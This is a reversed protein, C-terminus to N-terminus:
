CACLEVCLFNMPGPVPAPTPIPTPNTPYPTPYLTARQGCDACDYGYDCKIGLVPDSTSGDGGDDCVGDNGFECADVCGPAAKIAKKSYPISLQMRTQVPIWGNDDSHLCPGYTPRTEGEIHVCDPHFKKLTVSDTSQSEISFVDEQNCVSQSIEICLVDVIRDFEYGLSAQLGKAFSGWHTSCNQDFLFDSDAGMEEADESMIVQEIYTTLPNRCALDSYFILQSCFFCSGETKDETFQL